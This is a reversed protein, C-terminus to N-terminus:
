GEHGGAWLGADRMADRDEDTIGSRQGVMLASVVAGRQGLAESLGLVIRARFNEFGSLIGASEPTHLVRPAGYGFGVAGIGKFYMYRQFDFGGPIVPPSPPNLGALVEIKQGAKLDHAGRIKIRVMRPTKEASLDEIQVDKLIVRMGEKGPLHEVNRIVGQVDAFKIEKSLIPTHVAGTRLSACAFGLAACLMLLLFNRWFDHEKLFYLAQLFLLILVLSVGFDPEVPLGFYTAIGAGLFVPSWLFIHPRQLALQPLVFDRLWLGPRQWLHVGPIKQLTLERFDQM